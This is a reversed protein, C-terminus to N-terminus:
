SVEMLRAKRGVTSRVVEFGRHMLESAVFDVSSAPLYAFVAPGSNMSVFLRLNHQHRLQRLCQIARLSDPMWSILNKPGTSIVAMNAFIYNELIPGIDGFANTKIMNEVLAATERVKTLWAPYFPSLPVEAHIEESRKEGCIPIILTHFPWGEAPCLLKGINLDPDPSSRILSVNGIVAAAASYSGHRAYRSLHEDTLKASSAASAAVAVSAFVAASSGIGIGSPFNQNIELNWCGPTDLESHLQQLFARLRKQDEPLLQKGNSRASILTHNENPLFEVTADVYLAELAVFLTDTPLTRCTRDSYGHACVLGQLAHARATVKM